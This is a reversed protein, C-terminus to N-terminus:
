RKLDFENSLEFNSKEVCIFWVCMSTHKTQVAPITRPYCQATQAARSFLRAKQYHSPAAFILVDKHATPLM